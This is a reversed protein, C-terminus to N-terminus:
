NDCTFDIEDCEQVLTTSVIWMTGEDNNKALNLSRQYEVGEVTITKSAFINSLQQAVYYPIRKTRFLFTELKKASKRKKNIVVEEVDFQTSEISGFLRVQPKYSNTASGSTFTGYFNGNCDYNPYEGEVLITNQCKVKCFPESYFKEEGEPCFSTLCIERAENTTKGGAVLAAVCANFETLEEGEFVCTYGTFYFYFCEINDLKSTDIIINRYENFNPAVGNETTLPNQVTVIDEGTAVDVIHLFLYSYYNKPVFFQRYIIDGKVFPQCYDADVPCKNYNWLGCLENPDVNTTCDLVRILTKGIMTDNTEAVSPLSYIYQCSM